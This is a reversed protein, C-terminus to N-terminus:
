TERRASPEVTCPEGAGRSESQERTLTGAAGAHQRLVNPCNRVVVAGMCDIHDREQVVVAIAEAPQFATGRSARAASPASSPLTTSPPGAVASSRCESGAAEPPQLGARCRSPSSSEPPADESGRTMPCTSKSRARPTV